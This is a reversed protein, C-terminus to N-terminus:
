GGPCYIAGATKLGLSTSSAAGSNGSTLVGGKCDDRRPKRRRSERRGRTFSTGWIGTIVFIDVGNWLLYDLRKFTSVVAFAEKDVTPWRLESGM